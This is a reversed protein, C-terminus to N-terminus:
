RGDRDPDPRDSGAKTRGFLTAIFASVRMRFLYLVSSVAALSAVIEQVLMSAVGPDIYAYAPASAQLCCLLSITGLRRLRARSAPRSYLWSSM